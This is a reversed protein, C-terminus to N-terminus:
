PAGGAKEREYASTVPELPVSVLTVHGDKDLDFSIANETNGVHKLVVDAVAVTSVTPNIRTVEVHATIPQDAGGDHDAFRNVAIDYHGPEICRIATTEKYSKARVESGDALTITSTSFGLSDRDLDVCGVQRSQYYVPHRSPPITWQDLDINRDISWDATILFEAPPKVGDVKAKSPAVAVIVVALVCLFLDTMAVFVTALDRKM